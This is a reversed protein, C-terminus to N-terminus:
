LSAPLTYLDHAFNAGRRAEIVPRWSKMLAVVKDIQALVVVHDVCTGGFLMEGLKAVEPHTSSRPADRLTLRTLADALETDM